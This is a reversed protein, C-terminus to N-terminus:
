VELYVTIAASAVSSSLYVRKNDAAKTVKLPVIQSNIQDLPLGPMLWYPVRGLNHAISFETNPTAHTTGQFFGGGMNKCPDPQEGKPHGFRIDPVLDTLVATWAKKAAADLGNVKSLLSSLDAM